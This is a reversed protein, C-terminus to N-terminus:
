KGTGTPIKVHEVRDALWGLIEKIDGALPYHVTVNKGIEAPDIDIHMIRPM